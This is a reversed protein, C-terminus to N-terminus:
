YSLFNFNIPNKKVFRQGLNEQDTERNYSKKKSKHYRSYVFLVPFFLVSDLILSSIKHNKMEYLYQHKVSFYWTQLFFPLLLSMEM